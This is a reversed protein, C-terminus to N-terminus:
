RGDGAVSWRSWASSLSDSGSPPPRASSHASHLGGPGGQVWGACGGPDVMWEARGAVPGPSKLARYSASGRIVAGQRSTVLQRQQRSLAGHRCQERWTPGAAM